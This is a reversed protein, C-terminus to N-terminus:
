KQFMHGLGKEYAFFLLFSKQTSLVAREMHVSGEFKKVSLMNSNKWLALLLLSYTEFMHVIMYLRILTLYVLFLDLFSNKANKTCKIWLTTSRKISSFKCNYYCILLWFYWFKNKEWLACYHIRCDSQSKICNM